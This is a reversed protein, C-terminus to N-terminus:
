ALKAMAADVLADFLDDDEEIRQEAAEIEAEIGSQETFNLSYSWDNGKKSQLTLEYQSRHGELTFVVKGLYGDEKTHEMEADIITWKM